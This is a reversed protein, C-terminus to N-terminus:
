QHASRTLRPPCVVEMGAQNDCLALARCRCKSFPIGVAIPSRLGGLYGSSPPLFPQLPRDSTREPSYSLLILTLPSIRQASIERIVAEPRFYGSLFPQNM